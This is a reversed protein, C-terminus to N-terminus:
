FFIAEYEARDGTVAVPVIFIDWAFADGAFSHIGQVFMTDATGSFVLRFCGGPRGSDSLPTAASLMLTQQMGDAATVTFADGVRGSVDSWELGAISM